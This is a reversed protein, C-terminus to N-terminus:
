KGPKLTYATAGVLDGAPSFDGNAALAMISITVAERKAPAKWGINWTRLASGEQTHTLMGGSKQTNKKDMVILEGATTEMAFGGSVDGMSQLDSTVKLTLRYTKGPVFGKPLGEIAVINPASDGQHCTGCEFNPASNNHGYSLSAFGAAAVCFGAILFVALKRM